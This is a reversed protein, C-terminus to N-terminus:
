QEASVVELCNRGGQKAKYLMEDAMELLQKWSSGVEPATIVAGGLSITIHDTVPSARHEIQREALALRMQEGVAKLGALDTRPLLVFFEEGGYRAVFDGSRKLSRSLLAAVEKLCNDGASHGYTDNYAKFYDIDIMLGGIAHQDRVARRWEQEVLENLRRRNPIGTLGDQNSVDELRRNLRNLDEQMMDSLRMVRRMQSYLKRYERALKGYEKLLEFTDTPPDAVLTEIRALVAEENKFLSNDKM